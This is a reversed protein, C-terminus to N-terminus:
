SSARASSHRALSSPFVLVASAGVTSGSLVDKPLVGSGYVDRMDSESLRIVAGKLAM